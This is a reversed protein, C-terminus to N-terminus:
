KKNKNKNKRKNRINLVSWAVAAVGIGGLGYTFIRGSREKDAFSLAGCTDAPKMEVGNCKVKDSTGKVALFVCLAGLLILFFPNKFLKKM